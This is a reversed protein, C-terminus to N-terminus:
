YVSFNICLLHVRQAAAGEDHGSLADFYTQPRNSASQGSSARFVYDGVDDFISSM